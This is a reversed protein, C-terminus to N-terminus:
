RGRRSTMRPPAADMARAARDGVGAFDSVNSSTVGVIAGPLESRKGGLCAFAWCSLGISSFVGIGM